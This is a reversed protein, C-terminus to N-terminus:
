RGCGPVLSLLVVAAVCALAILIRQPWHDDVTM